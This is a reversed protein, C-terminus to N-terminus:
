DKLAEAQAELHNTIDEMEEKILDERAEEPITPNAEMAKAVRQQAEDYIAEETTDESYINM